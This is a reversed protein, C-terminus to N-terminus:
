WNDEEDEEKMIERGSAWQKDVPAAVAVAMQNRNLTGVLESELQRRSGTIGPPM